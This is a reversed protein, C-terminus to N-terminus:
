ISVDEMCFSVRCNEWDIIKTNDEERNNPYLFNWFLADGHILTLPGLNERRKTLLFPLRIISKELIEKKDEFLRDALFDVLKEFGIYLDNFFEKTFEENFHSNDPFGEQNSLLTSHNWWKAHHAALCCIASKCDEIKPPIPYVTQFHTESLDEVLLISFDNENSFEAYYCKLLYDLDSFLNHQLYFKVENQCNLEPDIERINPKSLKLFFCSPFGSNSTSYEM